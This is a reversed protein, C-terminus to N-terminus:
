ILILDFLIHRIKNLVELLEQLEFLISLKNLLSFKWIEPLHFLIELLFVPLIRLERLSDHAIFAITMSMELLLKGVIQSPLTFHIGSGKTVCVGRISVRFFSSQM